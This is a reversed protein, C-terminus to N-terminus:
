MFVQTCKYRVSNKKSRSIYSVFITSSISVCMKHEIVKERFNHRKHSLTSFYPLVPCAVFSLIIRRVRLAHQTVLAVFVCASYTINNKECCSHNRLRADTNHHVHM